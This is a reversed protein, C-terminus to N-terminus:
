KKLVKILQNLISKITMNAIRNNEMKKVWNPSHKYYFNIFSRGLAYKQLFNDRFDRLVMVQPHDYDGYVMTAIYCGGSSGGSGGTPTTSRRHMGELTNKNETYRSRTDSNMDFTGLSRLVNVSESEVGLISSTANVYQVMLALVVQVVESSIKLYVEDYQGLASKINILRNKSASMLMSADSRFNMKGSATANQLKNIASSIQKGIYEIDGSVQEYKKREPAEEMYDNYKKIETEYRAKSRGTCVIKGAYQYLLKAKKEDEVDDSNNFHVIGCDLLTDALKNAIMQYQVNDRGLVKELFALDNKIDNYLRTGLTLARSEDLNLSEKTDELKSKLKELPETTFKQSINHQANESFTKFAKLFESTTIGNTKNLYPKALSYISTIFRDQLDESTIKFHEGGIQSCYSNLNPNTLFKGAYEVGKLFHEKNLSGNNASLGILLTKLNALNSYNKESVDGDKVVKSWIEIAKEYNQSKLNDLAAEDIHNDNWFWFLSYLIKNLPQEINSSAKSISDADRSLEGLFPFDTDFTVTKGVEAFRKAKTIQKQIDKEKANVPVGLIRYPNKQVLNM